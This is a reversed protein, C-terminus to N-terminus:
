TEESVLAISTKVYSTWSDAYDRSGRIQPQLWRLLALLARHDEHYRARTPEDMWHRWPEPDDARLTTVVKEVFELGAQAISFSAHSGAYERLGQEVGTASRADVAPTDDSATVVTVVDSYTLECEAITTDAIHYLAVLMVFAMFIPTHIKNRYRQVIGTIEEYAVNVQMRSQNPMLLACTRMTRPNFSWLMASAEAYFSFSFVSGRPEPVQDFASGFPGHLLCPDIAFRDLIQFFADKSIAFGPTAEMPVVAM